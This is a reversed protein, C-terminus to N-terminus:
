GTRRLIALGAFTVTVRGGTSTGPETVDFFDLGVRDVTGTLHVGDNTTVTVVARDRAIGRLVYGLDLRAAVAGESGPVAAAAGLQAVTVVAALPVLARTGPQDTLLVWDPGVAEVVATVSGFGTVRFVLHRGVAARLRDVLRVRALERRTRDAVESELAAHEAEAAQAELDEFLQEWRM